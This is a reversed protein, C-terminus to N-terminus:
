AACAGVRYAGRRDGREARAVWQGLLQGGFLVAAVLL